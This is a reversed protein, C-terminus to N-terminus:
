TSTEEETLLFRERIVNGQSDKRPNGQADVGGIDLPHIDAEAWKDQNALKWNILAKIANFLWALSMKRSVYGNHSGYATAGDGLWESVELYSRMINHRLTDENLDTTDDTGRESPSEKAHVDHSADYAKPM